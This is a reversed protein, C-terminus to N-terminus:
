LQSSFWARIATPDKTLNRKGWTRDVAHSFTKAVSLGSTEMGFITWGQADVM